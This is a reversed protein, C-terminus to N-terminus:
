VQDLKLCLVKFIFFIEFCIPNTINSGSKIKSNHGPQIKSKYCGKHHTIEESSASKSRVHIGVQDRCGKDPDMTMSCLAPLLRTASERLTFFNHTAAMALIGAQRAPPFPDKFARLYASSLVKQRM